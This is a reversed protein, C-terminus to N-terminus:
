FIIRTHISFILILTYLFHYSVVLLHFKKSQMYLSFTSVKWVVPILILMLFSLWSAQFWLILIGSFFLCFLIVKTKLPQDKEIFSLSHPSFHASPINLLLRNWRNTEILLFALVMPVSWIFLSAPIFQLQWYFAFLNMGMGKFLSLILVALPALDYALFVYQFHLFLTYFLPLLASLFTGEIFFYALCGINLLELVINPRPIYFPSSAAKKTMQTELLKNILLFFYLVVYALFQISTFRSAYVVGLFTQAFPFLITHLISQHFFSHLKTRKTEVVHM